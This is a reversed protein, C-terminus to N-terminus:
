INLYLDIILRKDKKMVTELIKIKSKSKTYYFDHSM